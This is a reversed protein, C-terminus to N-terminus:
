VSIRPLEVAYYILDMLRGDGDMLRHRRKPQSLVVRLFGIPM